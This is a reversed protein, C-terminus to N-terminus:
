PKWLKKWCDDWGAQFDELSYALIYLGGAKELEEQFQKQFPSQKGKTAKAEVFVVMGDRVITYDALGKKSGIGQQNRIVFFGNYKWYARLEACVEKEKKAPAVIPVMITDPFRKTDSTRDFRDLKSAQM